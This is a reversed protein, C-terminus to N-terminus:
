PSPLPLFAVVCPCRSCALPGPGPAANQPWSPLACAQPSEAPLSSSLSALPPSVGLFCSSGAPLLRAEFCVRPSHLPRLRPLRFLFREGCGPAGRPCFGWRADKRGERGPHSPLCILQTRVKGHINLSGVDSFCRDERKRQDRPMTGM